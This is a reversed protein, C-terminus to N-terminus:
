ICKRSHLNCCVMIFFVQMKKSSSQFSEKVKSSKKSDLDTTDKKNKKHVIVSPEQCPAPSTAKRRFFLILGNLTFACNLHLPLLIYCQSFHNAVTSAKFKYGQIGQSSTFSFPVPESFPNNM